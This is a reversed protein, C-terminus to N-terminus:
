FRVALALSAGAPAGGPVAAPGALVQVPLDAPSREADGFDTFFALVAATVALAGAAPLLVNTALQYAEADDAAAYGQACVGPDGGSARCRAVADDFEGEEVLALSGTVAGAIGGAVAISATTWFWLPDVGDGSEGEPVVNGEASVRPIATEVATPQTGAFPALSLAVDVRRRSAVAVEQGAPEYGELTAEVRHHGVELPFPGPLPSVGVAAGDVLVQAGPVDVAVSVEGLFGRLEAVASAVSEREVEQATGAFEAQWREFSGLADVYMHLAKQCMALNFLAARTPFLELSVGFEVLAADWNENQMLAVGQEFHERAEERGAAEAEPAPPAPAQAWAPSPPMLIAVFTLVRM